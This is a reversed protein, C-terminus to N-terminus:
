FTKLLLVLVLVLVLCLCLCLCPCSCCFFQFYKLDNLRAEFRKEQHEATEQISIKLEQDEVGSHVAQDMSQIAQDMSQIAPNSEIEATGDYNTM